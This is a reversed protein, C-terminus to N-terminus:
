ASKIIVNTFLSLANKKFDNKPPIKIVKGDPIAYVDGINNYVKLARWLSPDKYFRLSINYLCDGPKITYTIDAKLMGAFVVGFFVMLMWFKKTM